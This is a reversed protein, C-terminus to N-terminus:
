RSFLNLHLKCSDLQLHLDKNSTHVEVSKGYMEDLMHLDNNILMAQLFKVVVIFLNLSTQNLFSYLILERWFQLLGYSFFGYVLPQCPDFSRLNLSFIEGM